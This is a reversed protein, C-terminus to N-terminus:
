ILVLGGAITLGVGTVADAEPSALYVALEAVEEPKVLRGIPTRGRMVSRVESKQIGHLHAFRTPDILETDVWGPCIATVRVGSAATELALCQTLGVIAHKAVNYASQYLTGWKGATSAMNIIRGRHAELMFPLLARTVRITGIVNVDLSQRWDDLSYDLFRQQLYVGANNVLVDIGGLENFVTQRLSEVESDRTLDGAVVSAQPGASNIEAAVADLQKRSRAFLVVRAGERAFALAIARGIGRGAGTVVARQGALRGTM